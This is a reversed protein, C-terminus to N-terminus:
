KCKSATSHLQQIDTTMTQHEIKEKEQGLGEWQAATCDEKKSSALDRMSQAKTM